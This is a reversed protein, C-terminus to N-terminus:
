APPNEPADALLEDVRRARLGTELIPALLTELRNFLKDTRRPGAGVHTLLLFGNLGHADKAAYDRVSALITDTSRHNPADDETYDTHSLTGPTFNFLRPGAQRSWAAIEANYWEYPPIWWTISERAIGYRALRAINADLDRRFQDQTILTQERNDWPCYLLHADSHPGVYHGAEVARETAAWNSPNKLFDGTFFFSGRIGLRELTDLVVDFGEGFDGGTFLPAFDARDRPARVVAGHSWTYASAPVSM